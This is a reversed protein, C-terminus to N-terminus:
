RVERAAQTRKGAAPKRPAPQGSLFSEAEAANTVCRTTVKGNEMRAMTVSQFRDQLHVTETGDPKTTARLGQDSQNVFAEMKKLLAQSEQATPSRLRSTEGPEDSTPGKAAQQAFTSAPALAVVLLPIIRVLCPRTRM